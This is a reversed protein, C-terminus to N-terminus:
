VVDVFAISVQLVEVIEDSIVVFVYVSIVLTRYVADFLQGEFLLYVLFGIM